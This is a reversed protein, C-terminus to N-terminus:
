MPHSGNGMYQAQSCKVHYNHSLPIKKGTTEHIASNNLLQIEKRKQM